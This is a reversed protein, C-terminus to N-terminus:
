TTTVSTANSEGRLVDRVFQVYDAGARVRMQTSLPYRRHMSRAQDVLSRLVSQPLDAPRITQEVDLLYIQHRSQARSWDM